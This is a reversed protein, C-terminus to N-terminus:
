LLWKGSVHVELECEAESPASAVLGLRTSVRPGLAKKLADKTKDYLQVLSINDDETDLTLTFVTRM